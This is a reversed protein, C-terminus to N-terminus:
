KIKMMYLANRNMFSARKYTANHKESGGLKTVTATKKQQAEEESEAKEKNGGGHTDSIDLIELINDVFYKNSGM